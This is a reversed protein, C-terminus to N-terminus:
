PIEEATRCFPPIGYEQVIDTAEHRKASGKLGSLVAPPVSEEAVEAVEVEAVEAVEEAM